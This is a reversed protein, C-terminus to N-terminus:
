SCALRVALGHYYARSAFKTPQPSPAAQRLLPNQIPLVFRGTSEPVGLSLGNERRRSGRQLRPRVQHLRLGMSEEESLTAEPSFCTVVELGSEKRRETKLGRM